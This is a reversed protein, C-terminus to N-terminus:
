QEGLLKKKQAEFEAETILGQDRLKALKGIEDAISVPEAAVPPTPAPDAKAVVQETVAPRFSRAATLTTRKGGRTIEVPYTPTEAAKATADLYDDANKFRKGSIEEVVDGVQLGATEAVSGPYIKTIRFATYKGETVDEVDVGLAAHNPFTTGPPYKGGAAAMFNMMGNHFSAGSFDTRKTQGFAMQLEMWGSAQVRSVGNVNAINFRFYRHPPTSYSNGLLMQGLISQGTNLPTECVVQNSGSSVVTWKIDICKASLQGVVVDPKDPFLMETGGSPTVAFYKNALAPASQISAIFAAAVIVLRM